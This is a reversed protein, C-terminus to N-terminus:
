GVDLRATRSLGRVWLDFLVRTVMVGTFISTVVGVMLTVAFGKIPGTGFQALVIASILTTV